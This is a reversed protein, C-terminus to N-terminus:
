IRKNPRTHKFAVFVNSSKAHVDSFDSVEPLILSIKQDSNKLNKNSLYKFGISERRMLRVRGDLYQELASSNVNFKALKSIHRSFLTHITIKDNVSIWHRFDLLFRPLIMRNCRKRISLLANMSTSLENM